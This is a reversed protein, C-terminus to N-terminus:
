RPRRRSKRYRRRSPEQHPEAAVEGEAEGQSRRGAPLTRKSLPGCRLPRNREYLVPGPPPHPSRPADAHPKRPVPPASAPAQRHRGLVTIGALAPASPLRLVLQERPRSRLASSPAVAWARPRHLADPRERCGRLAKAGPRTGRTATAPGKPRPRGHRGPLPSRGGQHRMAQASSYFAM